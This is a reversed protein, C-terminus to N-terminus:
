PLDSYGDLAALMVPFDIDVPGIRLPKITHRM